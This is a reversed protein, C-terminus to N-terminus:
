KEEQLQFCTEIQTWVEDPKCDANVVHIVSADVKKYHQIVPETQKHYEELRQVLSNANDDSRRILPEGTVDDKGAVKPPNFKEHYTRGSAKHILRGSIRDALISDDIELQV